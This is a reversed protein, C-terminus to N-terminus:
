DSPTHPKVTLEKRLSELEEPPHQNKLLVYGRFNLFKSPLIKLKIKKNTKSSKNKLKKNPM